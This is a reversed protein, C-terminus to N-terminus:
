PKVETGCDLMQAGFFPNKIPFTAQIWRADPPAGKYLSASMPCQLVSADTMAGQKKLELVLASVADSFPLFEKRAEELNKAPLLHGTGRVADSRVALAGNSLAPLSSLARPFDKIQVNFANVDDAALATSMKEVVDILPQFPTGITKNPEALASPMSEGGTALISEADILLNGSLVVREGPSVGQLIEVDKEGRRGVKVDRRVYGGKEEVYVVQRRGTDLVASRPVLIANGLNVTVVADGFARHPLERRTGWPTEVLPNPVEIRVNTSRTAPDFNPDIFTVKGAFTKGPAAPTTLTADEGIHIWPLDSEYVQAHFWMTSFDGLSFLQDGKKVYQGPYISRTIITGTIPSLLDIGYKDPSKQAMRGVQDPTLGYQILRKGANEAAARNGSRFAEQYERVVYLLDPSYIDALPQGQKVAEGVHDVYTEDIRGDFFATVVRHMTDNDEIEGSLRLSKILPAQHVETTAVNLIQATGPQLTIRRPDAAKAEEGAYVPVLQMGCITCNGPKDSTIWPHMPSQYFKIKREDGTEKPRSCSGLLLAGLLIPILLRTKM